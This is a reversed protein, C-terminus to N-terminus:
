GPLQNHKRVPAYFMHLPVMQAQGPRSVVDIGSGPLAAVYRPKPDPATAAAVVAKAIVALPDDTRVEAVARDAIRRRKDDVVGADGIARTAPTAHNVRSARGTGGPVVLLVRVGDEWAEHDVAASYGAVAHRSARDAALYPGTILGTVSPLNIIRGDRRSRMYPLVAQTMRVLGLLNNDFDGQPRASGVAATNVLVDIRGFRKVVREVVRTASAGQTVDLGIFVVDDVLGAGSADRGTGAVDFGAAVLALSCARGIGSSACTVLAVRRRTAM